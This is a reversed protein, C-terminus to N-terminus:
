KIKKRCMEILKIINMAKNPNSYNPKNNMSQIFEKCEIELSTYKIPIPIQVFSNTKTNFKYLEDDSWEYISKSTQIKITRKKLYSARDVDIICLRNKSFEFKITIAYLWTKTKRFNIIEIDTPNGLVEIFISIFHSVLDLLIDEQFSGIRTWNCKLYVIPEKEKIKKLKKLVPHYLFIHGVFLIRNNKKAISILKTANKYSEALTKEVFVHKRSKLAKKSFSFHTNIPTAIVIVEISKDELIEDYNKNYKINPYNKKLWTINQLDGKSHCAVVNSIKSFERVLNKGWRGLGIIAVNM